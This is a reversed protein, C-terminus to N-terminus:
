AATDNVTQPWFCSETSVPDKLLVTNGESAPMCDHAGHPASSTAQNSLTAVVPREAADFLAGASLAKGGPM